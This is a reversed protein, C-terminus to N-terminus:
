FNAYLLGYSTEGIVTTSEELYNKVVKATEEDDECGEIDISYNEIINSISEESFDCCIAIVDLEMEDCTDNEYAEFYEFLLDLAKYSFQEPRMEEFAHHFQHINITQKM